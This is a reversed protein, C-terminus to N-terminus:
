KQHPDTKDTFTFDQFYENTGKPQLGLEKFRMALYDAAMKEYTTGTRRGQLSDSALIKVDDEMSIEINMEKKCSFFLLAAFLLIIVRM